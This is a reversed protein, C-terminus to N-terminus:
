EDVICVTTPHAASYNQAASVDTFHKAVQLGRISAHISEIKQANADAVSRAATATSQATDAASQATTAATQATDATKQAADVKKSVDDYGQNVAQVMESLDNSTAYGSLDPKPVTVDINGSDDPAVKDGGNLSITKVKGAEALKSDITTKDYVDAKKAFDDPNIDSVHKAIDELTKKVAPIQTNNIETLSDSAQKVSKQLGDKFGAM